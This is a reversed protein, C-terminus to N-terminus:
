SGKSKWLLMGSGAVILAGGIWSAMTLVEGWLAWGAVIHFLVGTYMVFTVIMPHIHTAGWTFCVQAFIASFSLAFLWLCEAADPIQLDEGLMLLLGGAMSYFQFYFVIEGGSHGGKENLRGICAYACASCFASVIGVLAYGNFSSYDWIRLVVAAGAAIIFLWVRVQGSPTTKLFIPSLICMFFAALQVLIEADGLTLGKLCFFFLLIGMGGFIGRTHLLLRDKGSFLPLSERKAILPLFFLGVLGRVFTLEGTGLYSVAKASVDMLTFLLAALISALIGLTMSSPKTTMIPNLPNLTLGHPTGSRSGSHFSQEFSSNPIQLSPLPKAAFIYPPSARNLIM